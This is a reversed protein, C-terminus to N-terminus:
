EMDQLQRTEWFRDVFEPPEADTFTLATLIAEFRIWSMDENIRWPAGQM